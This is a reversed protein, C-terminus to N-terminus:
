EGGGRGRIRMGFRSKISRSYRLELVVVRSGLGVREYKQQKGLNSPVKWALLPGYLSFQLSFITYLGFLSSCNSAPHQQFTLRHFQGGGVAFKIHHRQAKGSQQLLRQYSRSLGPKRSLKLLLMAQM